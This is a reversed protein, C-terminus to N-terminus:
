PHKLFHASYVAHELCARLMSYVEPVQGSLGLRVGARYAAHARYVFLPAVLSEPNDLNNCLREFLADIDRLRRFSGPLNAFSARANQEADKLFASLPDLGWGPPTPQDTM